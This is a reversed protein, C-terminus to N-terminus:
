PELSVTSTIEPRSAPAKSYMVLGTSPSRSMSFIRAMRLGLPAHRPHEVLGVVGLGDLLRAQADPLLGLEEARLRPGAAAGEGHDDRGGVDGPREVHAVGEVVGELVDEHAPPAQVALLGAPDRPGVVAPDGGLVHHLLLELALALRAVVE